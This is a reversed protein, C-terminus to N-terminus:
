LRKFKLDNNTTDDNMMLLDDLINIFYDNRLPYVKQNIIMYLQNEIQKPLNLLTICSPNINGLKAKFNGVMLYQILIKLVALKDDIINKDKKQSLSMSDRYYTNDSSIFDDVICDSFDIFKVDFDHNIMLNKAHVDGHIINADNMEKLNLLVHKFLLLIEANSKKSVFNCDYFTKYDKLYPIIVKSNCYSYKQKEKDTLAEFSEPFLAYPFSRKTLHYLCDCTLPSYKLLHGDDLRYLRPYTEGDVTVKKLLM